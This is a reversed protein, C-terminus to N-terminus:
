VVATIREESVFDIWSTDDLQLYRCGADYFAQIAKRYTAVTDM